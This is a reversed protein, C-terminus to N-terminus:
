LNKGKLFFNKLQYKHYIKNVSKPNIKKGFCFHPVLSGSFTKPIHMLEHILVREKDSKSLCDFKQSVVEIIYHAEINLANQWIRPLSWVRAIARSTSHYSRFCYIRHFDIHQFDELSSSLDSIMNKIDSAPEFSFKNKPM